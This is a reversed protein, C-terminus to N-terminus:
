FLTIRVENTKRRADPLGCVVGVAFRRDNDNKIEAKVPKFWKTTAPYGVFNPSPDHKMFRVPNNIALTKTTAYDCMVTVVGRTIVSIRAHSDGHKQADAGNLLAAMSVGVFNDRTYYTDDSAYPQGMVDEVDDNTKIRKGRSPTGPARFVPTMAPVVFSDPTRGNHNGVSRVQVVIGNQYSEPVPPLM